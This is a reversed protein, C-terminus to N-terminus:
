LPCNTRVLLTFPDLGFETELDKGFLALWQDQAAFAQKERAENCPFGLSAANQLHHVMEHVVISLDAATEGRWDERLYITRSEDDYVAVIDAAGSLVRHDSAVGRHRLALMVEPVVFRINPPQSAPPLEFSLSLWVSIANMLDANPPTANRGAAQELVVEYNTGPLRVRETEGSQAQAPHFVLVLMMAAVFRCRGRVYAKM